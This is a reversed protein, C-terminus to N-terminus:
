ETELMGLITIAIQIARNTNVTPQLTVILLNEELYFALQIIKEREVYGFRTKGYIQDFMAHMEARIAAQNFWRKQHIEDDISEIGDRMGGEILKGTRSVFGVFRIDKDIDFIRSAVEKLSPRVYSSTSGSNGVAVQM